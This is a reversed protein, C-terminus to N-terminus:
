AQSVVFDHMKKCCSLGTGMIMELGTFDLALSNQHEADSTWAIPTIQSYVFEEKQSDAVIFVKHSFEARMTKLQDLTPDMVIKTDKSTNAVLMCIATPVCKVRFQSGMLSQSACNVLAQLLDQDCQIVTFNFMIQTGEYGLIVSSLVKQVTQCLVGQTLTKIKQEREHQVAAESQM